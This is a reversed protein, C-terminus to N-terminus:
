WRLFFFRWTNEDMITEVTAFDSFSVGSSSAFTADM